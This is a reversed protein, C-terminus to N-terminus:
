MSVVSITFQRWISYDPGDRNPSRPHHSPVSKARRMTEPDHYELHFILNEFVPSLYQILNLPYHQM